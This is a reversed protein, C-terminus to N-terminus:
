IKNWKEAMDRVSKITNAGLRYPNPKNGDFMPAFDTPICGIRFNDLKWAVLAIFATYISKKQEITIKKNMKNLVDQIFTNCLMGMIFKDAKDSYKFKNSDFIIFIQEIQVKFGLIEDHIMTNGTIKDMQDGVKKALRLLTSMYWVVRGQKLYSNSFDCCHKEQM